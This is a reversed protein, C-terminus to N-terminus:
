DCVKGCSRFCTAQCNTCLGTTPEGAEAMGSGYITVSKEVRIGGGSTTVATVTGSSVNRTVTKEM